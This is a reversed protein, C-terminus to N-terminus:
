QPVEAASDEKHFQEGETDNQREHASEQTDEQRSEADYPLSKVGVVQLGGELLPDSPQLLGGWVAEM